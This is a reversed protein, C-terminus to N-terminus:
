RKIHPCSLNFITLEKPNEFGVLICNSVNGDKTDVCLHRGIYYRGKLHEEIWKELIDETDSWNYHLQLFELGDPKKVFKRCNFFNLPNIKGTKSFM